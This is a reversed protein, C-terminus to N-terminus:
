SSMMRFIPSCKSGSRPFYTRGTADVPDRTTNGTTHTRRQTRQPILLPRHSTSLYQVSRFLCFFNKSVGKRLRHHLPATKEKFITSYSLKERPRNPGIWLRYFGRLVNCGLPVARRAVSKAQFMLIQGM